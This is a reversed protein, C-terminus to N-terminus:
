LNCTRTVVSNLAEVNISRNVTNLSNIYIQPFDEGVNDLEPPLICINDADFGNKDDDIDGYDDGYEYYDDYEDNQAVPSTLLGLFLCKIVLLFLIFKM